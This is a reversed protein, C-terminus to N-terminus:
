EAYRGRSTGVSTDDPNDTGDGRFMVISTLISAFAMGGTLSGIEMWDLSFLGGGVLGSVFLAQIATKLAREGAYDWFSASVYKRM